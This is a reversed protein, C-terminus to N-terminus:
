PQFLDVWPLGGGLIVVRGDSPDLLASAGARPTSLAPGAVASTASVLETASLVAPLQINGALIAAIDISGSIGGAVLVQGNLLRTSTHFARTAALVPGNSFSGGVSTTYLPSTGLTTFAIQTLDGSQLVGSLDATIGGSLLVRGDALKTANHLLRGDTFLKPFLGFTNNTNYVYATNSVFPLNLFPIVGLGGAVLVQGNDLRTATAFAKPEILTPGATFANTLPDFLETSGLIAGFFTTPDTLDIASLGGVVLVKGNGLLAAAAGARPALLPGVSATAGTAPDYLTAEASPAGTSLDLGGLALVRGDALQVRAQFLAPAAPLMGNLSTAEAQTDYAVAVPGAGGISLMRGGPLPVLDGFLSLSFATWDAAGCSAPALYSKRCVNSFHTGFQLPHALYRVHHGALAPQATFSFVGAGSADLTTALVMANPGDRLPATAPTLLTSLQLGPVDGRVLLLVLQNPDGTVHLESPGPASGQHCEIRLDLALAPLSLLLPALFAPPRIM